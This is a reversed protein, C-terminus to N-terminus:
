LIPLQFIVKLFPKDCWFYYKESGNNMSTFDEPAFKNLIEIDAHFMDRFAKRIAEGELDIQKQMQGYVMENLLSVAEESPNLNITAHLTVNRTM